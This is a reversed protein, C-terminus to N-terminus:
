VMALTRLLAEWAAPQPARAKREAFISLVVQGERDFVDVSHLGARQAVWVRALLQPQVRMQVDPGKLTWGDADGHWRALGTHIQTMGRNGVFSLLRLNQAAAQTYIQALSDIRVQWSMGPPALALAKERPLGTESLLQAFQHADTLERWSQRFEALNLPPRAEEVPPELPKLLPESAGAALAYRQLLAEYAPTAANTASDPLHQAGGGQLSGLWLRHLLRGQADFFSLGQRLRPVRGNAETASAETWAFASHWRKFNPRLDIPAGFFANLFQAREQRQAEDLAADGTPKLPALPLERPVGSVLLSVAANHTEASIVGLGMVARLIDRAAEPGGQLRQLRLPPQRLLADLDTFAKARTPVPAQVQVQSAAARGAMGVSAGLGLWAGGANLLQRRRM